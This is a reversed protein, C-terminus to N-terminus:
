SVFDLTENSVMLRLESQLNSDLLRARHEKKLYKIKSFASECVYTSGFLALTERALERLMPYKIASKWTELLNEEDKFKRVLQEDNKIEVLKMQLDTPASKTEVLHPFAVLKLTKSIKEFDQFRDSFDQLVADLNCFFAISVKDVQIKNSVILAMLQSFYFVNHQHHHNKFLRCKDKFGTSEQAHFM